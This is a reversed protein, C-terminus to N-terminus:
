GRKNYRNMTREVGIVGFDKIIEGAEELLEPLLKEQEDSWGGLM